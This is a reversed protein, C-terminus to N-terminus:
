MPYPPAEGKITIWRWRTYEDSNGPGGVSTGNGSAGSGGFPNIIDDAVTQDNVHLIGTHIREGLAIARTVDKSIVGVALGYDTANALEVAEDDSGFTTILAVPGFVENEFAAMGPRVNEIVTPAYFLGDARGGAVLTAGASVTADVLSTIGDLQHRDIIPGLAVDGKSPDGVPIAKVHEALKDVFARAIKAHVLIRGTAMCIQGQHFFSGFTANRVALDLDADDLIVLSNKGGLELSVKKLMRGATEGVKRGARTSGTFQIMAVDPSTCLAEGAAGDGPLVALVGAPLGAKEFARAIAFGGCVSTRPDPKLVVANGLALAPAVARMALYLPFNFPAIVGVVGLPVRKALSMVGPQSALMQGIPQSPLAAAEYLAKITIGIEFHAKGTVSGSERVLWGAVEPTAAAFAQAAARLIEARREYPLAAWAPQAARAAKAARAIDAADAMGITGLTGGTAPETVDRTANLAQWGDAFGRGHWVASDLLSEKISNM